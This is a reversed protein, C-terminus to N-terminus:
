VPPVWSTLWTDFWSDEETLRVRSSFLSFAESGASSDVEKLILNNKGSVISLSKKWNKEKWTTYNMTIIILFKAKSLYHSFHVQNNRNNWCMSQIYFISQSICFVKLGANREGLPWYSTKKKESVFLLRILFLGTFVNANFTIMKLRLKLDHFTNISM